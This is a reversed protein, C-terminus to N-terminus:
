EVLGTRMKEIFEAVADIPQTAKELISGTMDGSMSLADEAPNLIFDLYKAPTFAKFLGEFLGGYDKIGLEAAKDKGEQGYDISTIGGEPLNFVRPNRAGTM